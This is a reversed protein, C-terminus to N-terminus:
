FGGEIIFPKHPVRHGGLTRAVFPGILAALVLGLVLGVGMGLLRKALGARM